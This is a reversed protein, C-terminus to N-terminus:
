PGEQQARRIEQMQEQFRRGIDGSGESPWAFTIIGGILSAVLAIVFVFLELAFFVKLRAIGSSLLAQDHTDTSLMKSFSSRALLVFAGEALMVIGALVVAVGRLAEFIGHAMESQVLPIAGFCMLLGIGMAVLGVLFHVVSFFIMWATLSGVVKQEYPTFPIRAVSAM